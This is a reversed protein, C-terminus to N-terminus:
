SRVLLGGAVISNSYSWKGIHAAFSRTAAPANCCGRARAQLDNPKDTAECASDCSRRSDGGDGAARGAPKITPGCTGPYAEVQTSDFGESLSPVGEAYPIVRRFGRLAPICRASCRLGGIEFPLSGDLHPGHIITDRRRSRFSSQRTPAGTPECPRFAKLKPAMTIVLFGHLAPICRARGKLSSHKTTNRLCGLSGPRDVFVAWARCSGDAREM